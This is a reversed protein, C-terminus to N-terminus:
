FVIRLGQQFVRPVNIQPNTITGFLASTPGLTPPAFENRNTLNFAEFRYQIKLKDKVHFDKLMSLDLNNTSDGRGYFQPFVRYNYVNPQDGSVRDFLTQDFTQVFNRPSIKLRSDYSTGNAFALNGWSIPTGSLYIYITNVTFGGLTLDVLKNSRFFKQGHGFPLLYSGTVSVHHPYDSTSEGYLQPGGPNLQGTQLNHSYEYNLNFTLGNSVRKQVRVVLEHFLASAGSALQQTVSSYAPNAQLLTAKTITKQGSLSAAVGAVNYFPNNVKGNLNTTLAANQTSTHSLFPLLPVSSTANSFSLHVQHNGIYGIDIMLNRTIQQQIDINWRESYPVHLNPGRFVIGAGLNQNLGLASGTPTVIPNIATPFPDSLTAAPTLFNNTTALMTTTASFGYSQPTNYDNFPNVFLGFGGRIAMKGRLLPPAFAFGLRPSIYATATNYENRRGSSAYIVGGTSQFQSVPLEPIPSATYAALAPATAVNTLTPDFGVVAKNNSEVIPTEHEVRLGMNLTLTPLVRWDDQLFAASYWNNYQTPTGIAQTGSTPLGLLFSAFSGGFPNTATSTNSTVYTNAFTFSGSSAGPTLKTYKEQRIDPGIKLVHRGSVKTLASFLQITDFAALGGPTTSLGAYAKTGSSESFALRPLFRETANTNIYGPFGISTADFGQSPLTSNLYSRSLGLRSDLTLTPTFIHIFDVAGGQYVNYTRTGTAINQFINSQTRKYESRHVELFVKNNSNLNYDLRGSHSNYDDSTPNNSFFNSEGDVAGPINPLPYYKLYGMAVSSIRGTQIINGAFPSRKVGSGSAVGTAPDYLQYANTKGGICVSPNTPDYTGAACGLPLLASFDGTREAATPVTNIQADPVTDKFREYSYFFFLKDRGNFLHPVRVPGGITGGYQNQRTAPTVTGAPIFWRAPANIASFQNFESASGHFTNTGAKTILNVTGGSTDGNSADAEFVDVRVEQVSDQSPSYGAVRSSDQMNPVGNLLVENSQSNGGGISFDSAASNDFPREQVVSNKSKPVVGYETKALGIPSRGNAPLNEIEEQTLVQGATATQTEILSSNATVRVEETSSGVTLQVDEAIRESAQVTIGDHVYNAFTPASVAVSYKGPLLFPVTYEGTATTTTMVKVGTDTNTVTVKAKVVVAGTSDVVRGTLTARFEQAFSPVALAVLAVLVVVFRKM